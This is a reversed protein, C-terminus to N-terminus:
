AVFAFGGSMRGSQMYSKAGGDGNPGQAKIRIRFYYGEHPIPKGGTLAGPYGADQAANLLPGLPSNPGGVTV